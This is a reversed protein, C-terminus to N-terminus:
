LECRRIDRLKSATYAANALIWDKHQRDLSLSDLLDDLDQKHKVDLDSHKLMTRIASDPYGTLRQLKDIAEKKPPNGEIVGIYGLLIVPHFHYIWYYQSGVLEAMEESPKRSLCEARQVGISELDELVWLDHDAEELSHLSYYSQLERGLKDDKCKTLATQMLPVSARMQSHSQLLYNHLWAKIDRTRETDKPPSHEAIVARIQQSFKTKEQMM